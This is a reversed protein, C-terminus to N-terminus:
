NDSDHSVKALHFYLSLARMQHYNRAIRVVLAFTVAEPLRDGSLVVRITGVYCMGEHLPFIHQFKVFNARVFHIKM